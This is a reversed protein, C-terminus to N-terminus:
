EVRYRLVLKNGRRNIILEFQTDDALNTYAKVFGAMGLLAHGEVSLLVDDQRWGLADALEGIVVAQFYGSELERLETADSALPGLDLRLAEFADQDIVYEGSQRDFRIHSGPDWPESGPGTTEETAPTCVEAARWVGGAEFCHAAAITQDVACFTSILRRQFRV